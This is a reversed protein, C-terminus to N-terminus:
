SVIPTPPQLTTLTLQAGEAYYFIYPLIIKSPLVRVFSNFYNSGTKVWKGEQVRLSSQSFFDCRDQTIGNRARVSVFMGGCAITIEPTTEVGM